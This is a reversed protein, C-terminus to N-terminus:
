EAPAPEEQVSRGQTLREHRERVLEAMKQWFEDDDPGGAKEM